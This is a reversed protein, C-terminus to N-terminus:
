VTVSLQPGFDHVIGVKTADLVDAAGLSPDLICRVIATQPTGARCEGFDFRNPILSIPARVDVHLNAIGRATTSGPTSLSLVASHRGAGLVSPDVSTTIRWTQRLAGFDHSTLHASSIMEASAVIWPESAKVRVEDWDRESYNLVEFTRSSSSNHLSCILTHDPPQITM